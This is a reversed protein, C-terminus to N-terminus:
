KILMFYRLIFLKKERTLLKAIPLKNWFCCKTFPLYISRLYKDPSKDGSLNLRALCRSAITFARAGFPHRYIKASAQVCLYRSANLHRHTLACLLLQIGRVPCLRAIICGVWGTPRAGSANIRASRYQSSTKIVPVCEYRLIARGQLGCSGQGKCAASQTADTPRGNSRARGHAEKETDSDRCPARAETYTSLQMRVM